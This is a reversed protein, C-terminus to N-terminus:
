HKIVTKDPENINQDVPLLHLEICGDVTDLIEYYFNFGDLEDIDNETFSITTLGMKKMILAAMTVWSDKERLDVCGTDITREDIKDTM